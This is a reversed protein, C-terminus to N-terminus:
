KGKRKALAKRARRVDAENWQRYGYSNRLKPEPVIGEKLLRLLHRHSLGLMKAIEGTYYTRTMTM